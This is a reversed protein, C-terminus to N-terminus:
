IQYQSLNNVHLSSNTLSQLTFSDGFHYGNCSLKKRTQLRFQFFNFLNFLFDYYLVISVTM